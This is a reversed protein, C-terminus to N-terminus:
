KDGASVDLYTTAKPLYRRRSESNRTSWIELSCRDIKFTGLTTRPV